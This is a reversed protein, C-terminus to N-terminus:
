EGRGTIPPKTLDTPELTRKEQKPATNVHNMVQSFSNKLIRQIAEVGRDIFTPLVQRELENFTELVYDALMLEGPHGIGMRLRKYNSTGLCTEISKLGNHGGTSGTDRLRLSGFPLAIDDSIIIVCALPLKFYDLYRRVSNGSLNMYTLPLILHITQGEYCGKAVKANFRRDEKLPWGLQNAFNEIVLYGMNHRTM